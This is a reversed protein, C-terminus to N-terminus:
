GKRSSYVFVGTVIVALVIWFTACKPCLKAKLTQYYNTATAVAAGAVGAGATSGGTGNSPASPSAVVPGSLTGDCGCM